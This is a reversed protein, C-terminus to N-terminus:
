LFAGGSGPQRFEEPQKQLSELFALQQCLFFLNGPYKLIAISTFPLVRSLNVEAVKLRCEIGVEPDELCHHSREKHQSRTQPHDLTVVPM